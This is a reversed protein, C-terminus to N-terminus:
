KNFPQPVYNYVRAFPELTDEENSLEKWCIRVYLGNPCDKLCLLQSVVMVTESQLLHLMAIKEINSHRFLNLRSAHIDVLHGYCLDEVQFFYINLAKRVRRPGQWRFCPKENAHFNVPAVVVYDGETFKPLQGKSRAERSKKRHKALTSQVRPHLDVCLKVLEDVNLESKPQAEAITVPLAM